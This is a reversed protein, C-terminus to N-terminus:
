AAATRGLQEVVAREVDAPLRWFGLAGKCRMPKSLALADRFVYGIADFYWREHITDLIPPFRHHRCSWSEELVDEVNVAGIVSGLVSCATLKDLDIEPAIERISAAGDLDTAKSAHIAIREDFIKGPSVIHRSRNEIPKLGLAILGAWPQRVSLCRM